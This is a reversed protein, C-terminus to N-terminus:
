AIGAGADAAPRAATVRQGDTLRAETAADPVGGYHRELVRTFLLDDPAARHFVTMCSRLKMADLPGLIQAATRGPVDLVLRACEHLRPGLVPHALYARAEDLSQIAYRESMPSHGLGSIQPFVFWIWHGTKEGRRLEALVQGYVREQATVFRDLEYTV